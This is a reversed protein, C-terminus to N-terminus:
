MADGAACPDVGRKGKLAHSLQQSPSARCWAGGRQRSGTLEDRQVAQRNARGELVARISNGSEVPAPPMAHLRLVRRLMAASISRGAVLDRGALVGAAVCRLFFDRRPHSSRTSSNSSSCRGGLGRGERASEKKCRACRLEPSACKLLQARSPTM